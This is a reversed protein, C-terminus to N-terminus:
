AAGDENDVIISREPHGCIAGIAGCASCFPGNGSTDFVPRAWQTAYEEIREAIWRAVSRSDGSDSLMAEVERVFEPTPELAKGPIGQPHSTIYDFPDFAPRSM